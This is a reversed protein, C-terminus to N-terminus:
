FHWGDDSDEALLKKKYYCLDHDCIVMIFLIIMFFKSIHSNGFNSVSM